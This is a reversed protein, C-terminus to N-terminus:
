TTLWLIAVSTMAEDWAFTSHSLMHYRAFPAGYPSTTAVHSLSSVSEVQHIKQDLNKLWTFKKLTDVDSGDKVKRELHGMQVEGDGKRHLWVM